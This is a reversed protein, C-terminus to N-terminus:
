PGYTNLVEEFTAPRPPEPPKWGSLKKIETRDELTKQKKSLLGDIRYLYAMMRLQTRGLPKNIQERYTGWPYATFNGYGDMIYRMHHMPWPLPTEEPLERYRKLQGGLRKPQNDGPFIRGM